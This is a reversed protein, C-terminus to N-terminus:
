PSFIVQCFIPAEKRLSLLICFSFFEGVHESRKYGDTETTQFAQNDYGNKVQKSDQHNVDGNGLRNEISEKGDEGNRVFGVLQVDYNPDDAKMKYSLHNVIPM